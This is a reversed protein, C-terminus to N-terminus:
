RRAPGTAESWAFQELRREILARGQNSRIEIRLNRPLNLRLNSPSSLQQPEFDVDLTFADLTVKRLWVRRSVPLGIAELHARTVAGTRADLEVWGRADCTWAVTHSSAVMSATLSLPNHQPARAKSQFVPPEPEMPWFEIRRLEPGAERFSFHYHERHRYEFVTFFAFWEQLSVETRELSEQLQHAQADFVRTSAAQQARVRPLQEGYSAAM